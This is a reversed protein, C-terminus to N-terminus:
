EVDEGGFFRQFASESAENLQREMGRYRDLLDRGAQTLVMNGGKEGGSHSEVLPKGWGEEARKLIRWAKTYSIDMRRCARTMQHEGDIMEMLEAVGPGFFVPEEAERNTIRLRITYNLESM